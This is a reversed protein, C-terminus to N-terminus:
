FSVLYRFGSTFFGVNRIVTIISRFNDVVSKLRRGLRGKERKEGHLLAITEAHERSRILEYRLDAEKKLQLNNLGVLRRGLFLTMGSGFLAYAVAAVLLLPTISWLVGAFALITITSNLITVAFSVAMSTFTKIDQSIRQDPNDIENQRIIRCYAHDSLYR